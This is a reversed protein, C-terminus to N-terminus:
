VVVFSFGEPLSASFQCTLFEVHRAIVGLTQCLLHENLTSIVWFSFSMFSHVKLEKKQRGKMTVHIEEDHMNDQKLIGANVAMTLRIMKRRSNFVSM